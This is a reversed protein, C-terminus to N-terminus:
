LVNKFFLVMGIIDGILFLGTLILSFRNEAFSAFFIIIDLILSTIIIPLIPFNYRWFFFLAIGHVIAGILSGPSKFASIVRLIIVAMFARFTASGFEAAGGTVYMWYLILNM